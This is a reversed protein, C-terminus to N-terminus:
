KESGHMTFGCQTSNLQHNQANIFSSVLIISCWLKSINKLSVVTM